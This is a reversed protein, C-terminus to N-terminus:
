KVLNPKGWYAHNNWFTKGGNVDEVKLTLEAAGNLKISVPIAPDKVTLKGSRFAECGDLLVVFDAAGDRTLEANMGVLAEFKSFVDVPLTYRMWCVRPGNMGSHPLVGLGHVERVKGDDFLLKGGIVPAGAPPTSRNGDLIAGGYVLDHMEGDAKWLRLDVTSFAQKEEDSIDDSALRLATYMIDLTMQAAKTVPPEAQNEAQLKDGAFIAQLLPIVYRRCERIAETNVSAQRWSIEAMTLGLLRPPRLPGCAGTVAELDTHYHFTSMSPPAPMLEALLQSDVIHASQTLDGFWHSLCGIFKIFSEHDGQRYAPIAQTLWHYSIPRSRMQESIPYPWSHLNVAGMGQPFVCFRKWDPDLTDKEFDPLTPNDFIDPYNGVTSLLPRVSELRVRLAIPLAEFAGEMINAHAQKNMNECNNEFNLSVKDPLPKSQL